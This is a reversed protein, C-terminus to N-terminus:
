QLKSVRYFRELFAPNKEGFLTNAAEDACAMLQREFWCLLGSVEGVQGTMAYNVCGCWHMCRSIGECDACDELVANKSRILADRRAVDVGGTVTGIVLEPRDDQGILRDCPYLNGSPAVALEACGFDCRDSKAYGGKLHTVIKSDLVNLRFGINRRYAGVYADRLGALAEEFAARAADDWDAEYNINMSVSRFGLELLHTFSDGLLRVNAPDVVAVAKCRVGGEIANRAGAAVAAYSSGGDARRRCGDQADPTGDLSIGVFFNEERLWAATEADLMTANTTVVLEPPEPADATRERVYGTIAKIRDLHLLPEGGFFGVQKLPLGGDFVLDIAGRATALPMPKRFKRGNYCYTCRLDCAHDLFLTLRM